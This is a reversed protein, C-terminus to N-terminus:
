LPGYIGGQEAGSVRRGPFIARESQQENSTDRNKHEFLFSLFFTDSEIGPSTAFSLWRNELIRQRGKRSMQIILASKLGLQVYLHLSFRASMPYPFGTAKKQLM